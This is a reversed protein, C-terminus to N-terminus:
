KIEFNILEQSEIKASLHDGATIRGVGEPTGTFIIDGKKLTIHKSVFSIIQDFSFIMNATHGNQKQENNKYLEFHIDNLNAFVSKPIFSSIVASHDFAKALEWPLSKEKLKNQLDRATFDIGLGIEDYYKHAFKEAIHKGEKSIKLIIELEYHIENSFDPIYFDKNDKLAATDPKLFIVPETPVANNLEIAHAVYNRGICIIKM